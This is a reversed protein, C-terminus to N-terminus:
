LPQVSFQKPNDMFLAVQTVTRTLGYIGKVVVPERLTILVNPATALAANLLGPQKAPKDFIPIVAAISNLPIIAEWRIDLRLHVANDTRFSPRKQITNIIALVVLCGYLSLLTVWCAVTPSWRSLMVHMATAEILGVGLLGILLAVQGSERHTTIPTAGTPLDTPNRWNLLAYYIVQGESVILRAARQGFVASLSGRLAIQRDHAPRLARYTRIITRLRFTTIVLVSGELLALLGPWALQLSPLTAPIMFLAVRLMAVAFLVTRSVPLRLPRAILGYFLATTLVTCDFLIGVSLALPHKGFAATKTIALEIGLLCAILLVCATSRHAASNTM